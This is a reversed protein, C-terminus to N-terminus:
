HGTQRGVRLVVAFLAPIWGVLVGWLAGYLASNTMEFGRFAVSNATWTGAIAAAAACISVIGWVAFFLLGRAGVRRVSAAALLTLLLTGVGVVLAAVLEASSDLRFRTAYGRADFYGAVLGLSSGWEGGHRAITNVSQGLAVTLGAAVLGAALSPLFAGYTRQEVPVAPYGHGPGGAYAPAAPVGGEYAPGPGATDPRPLPQRAFERPQHSHTRADPAPENEPPRGGEAFRGIPLEETRDGTSQDDSQHGYPNQSM